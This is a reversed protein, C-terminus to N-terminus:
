SSLFCIDYTLTCVHFRSSCYQHVQKYPLLLSASMSFLNTSMPYSHSPSLPIFPSLLPFMYMVMHLTSLWHSNARHHLSSLKTCHVVQLPPVSTGSPPSMHIGIVSEHQHTASGTCCQLATIRRNFIFQFIFGTLHSSGPHPGAQSTFAVVCDEESKRMSRTLQSKCKMFKKM